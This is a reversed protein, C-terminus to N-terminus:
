AGNASQERLGDLYDAYEQMMRRREELYEARNYVMRVADPDKHALQAEVLDPRVGMENLRTSATSRFGHLTMTNQDYGM